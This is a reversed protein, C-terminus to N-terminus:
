HIKKVDHHVTILTRQGNEKSQKLFQKLDDHQLLKKVMTINMGIHVPLLGQIWTYDSQLRYSIVPVTPTFDCGTIKTFNCICPNAHTRTDVTDINFVIFNCHTRMCVCGKGIYILVTQPKENPHIEFHRVNQEM